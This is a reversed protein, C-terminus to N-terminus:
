AHAVAGALENEQKLEGELGIVVERFDSEIDLYAAAEERASAVLRTLGQCCPVEMRAITVSRPKGQLFLEVLKERYGEMNDLKPCAIILGKGALLQPHFAGCAFATCSAAILVDAGQFQPADPRVLHLQIPWQGLASPADGGTAQPARPTFVRQAKGPCGGGHAQAPAKPAAAAHARPGRYAPAEREEVHLANTPCEPLCMGLGDCYDERVLKAKGDVLALAGGVCANVCEGCGTCKEEDIRIVPRKAM